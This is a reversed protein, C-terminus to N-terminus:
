RASPRTAARCPPPTRRGAPSRRSRGPWRRAASARRHAAPRARATAPACRRGRTGGRGAPRPGAAAALRVDVGPQGARPPQEEVLAVPARSQHREHDVRGGHGRAAPHPRVQGAVRREVLQVGEGALEADGLAAEVAVVVVHRRLPVVLDDGAADLRHGRALQDAPQHRRPQPAALRAIRRSGSLAFIRSTLGCVFEDLGGAGARPQGPGRAEWSSGRTRRTSCTRSPPWRGCCTPGARPSSTTRSTPTSAACRPSTSTTASARRPWSASTPTPSRAATPTATTPRTRRPSGSWGPWRPCSRRPRRPPWRTRPGPPRASRPTASATTSRTTSGRPWCCRRRRRVGRRQRGARRAPRPGRDPAPHRPLRPEPRRVGGRARRARRPQRPPAM